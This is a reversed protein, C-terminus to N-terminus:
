CTKKATGSVTQFTRSIIERLKALHRNHQLTRQDGCRDGSVAALRSRDNAATPTFTRYAGFDPLLWSRDGSMAGSSVNMGSTKMTKHMEEWAKTVLEIRTVRELM